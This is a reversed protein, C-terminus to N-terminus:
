FTGFAFSFPLIACRPHITTANRRFMDPTLLNSRAHDFPTKRVLEAPNDGQQYLWIPTSHIGKTEIRAYLFRLRVTHNEVVTTSSRMEDQEPAEAPIDLHEGSDSPVAM